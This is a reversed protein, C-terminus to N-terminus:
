SYSPSTYHVNKPTPIADRKNFLVLAEFDQFCTNNLSRGDAHTLELRSKDTAYSASTLYTHAMKLMHLAVVPDDRITM